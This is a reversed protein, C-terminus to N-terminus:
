NMNTLFQRFLKDPNLKEYDESTPDGNKAVMNICCGNECVAVSVEPTIDGQVLFQYYMQTDEFPPIRASM